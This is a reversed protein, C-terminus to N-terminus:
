LNKRSWETYLLMEAIVRASKLGRIRNKLKKM